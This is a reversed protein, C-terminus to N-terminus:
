GIALYEYTYADNFQMKANTASYWEVTTGVQTFYTTFHASGDCGYGGIVYQKGGLDLMSKCAALDFIGMSQVAPRATGVNAFGTIFLLKPVFAFQLSNRNNVGYVGTGGYTGSEIRVRTSALLSLADDPVAGSSLGLASRTFDSISENRTYPVYEMKSFPIGGALKDNTVAGDLLKVGAISNDPIQGTVASAIEGHIYDLADQINASTGNPLSAGIESAGIEAILADILANFKEKVEIGAEDFKAKLAEASLGGVDNPENDLASIINMDKTIKEIAM